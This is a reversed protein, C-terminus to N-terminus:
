ALIPISPTSDGLLDVAGEIESMLSRLDSDSVVVSTSTCCTPSDGGGFDFDMGQSADNAVPDELRFFCNMEAISLM